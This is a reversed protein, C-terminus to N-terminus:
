EFEWQLFKLLVNWSHIGYFSIDGNLDWDDYDPSRGDHKEGSQLEGGIKMIFMACEGLGMSGCIVLLHDLKEDRRIAYM